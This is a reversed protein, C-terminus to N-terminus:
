FVQHLGQGTVASCEFYTCKLDGTIKNHATHEQVANQISGKNRLDIKNGVFVKLASPRADNISKFWKILM